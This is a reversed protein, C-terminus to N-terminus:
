EEKITLQGNITLVVGPDISLIAGNEIILDKCVMGDVKIEPMTTATSPIVVDDQPGPVAAPCWNGAANWQASLSGSWTKVKINGHTGGQYGGSPFDDASVTVAIMLIILTFVTKAIKISKM